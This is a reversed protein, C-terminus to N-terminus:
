RRDDAAKKALANEKIFTEEKTTKIEPVVGTNEWSTNTIPNIARGTPTFFVLIM